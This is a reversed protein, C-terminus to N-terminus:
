IYNLKCCSLWSLILDLPKAPKELDLIGYVTRFYTEMRPNGEVKRRTIGRMMHSHINFDIPYKPMFKDRRYFGYLLRECWQGDTLQKVKSIWGFLGPNDISTIKISLSQEADTSEPELLYNM